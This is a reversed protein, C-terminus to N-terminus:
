LELLGAFPTSKCQVHISGRFGHSTMILGCPLNRTTERLANHAADRLPPPVQVSEAASPYLCTRM